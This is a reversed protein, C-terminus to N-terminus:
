KFTDILDNLESPEKFYCIDPREYMESIIGEQYPSNGEFNINREMDLNLLDSRTKKLDPPRPPPRLTLDPYFPIPRNEIKPGIPQKIDTQAPSKHETQVAEQSKTVTVPLSQTVKPASTQPPLVIRAKRRIGTRGQGIGPKPIPPRKDM